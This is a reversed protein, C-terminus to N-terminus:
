TSGTRAPALRPTGIRRATRHWAVSAGLGPGQYGDTYPVFDPGNVAASVALLDPHGYRPPLRRLVAALRNAPLCKRQRM